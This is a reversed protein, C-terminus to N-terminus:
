GRALEPMPTGTYSHLLGRLQEVQSESLGSKPIGLSAKKDNRVLLFFRPYEEVRKYATWNTTTTSQGSRVTLGSADVVIRVEGNGYAHRYMKHFRARIMWLRLLILGIAVAIVAMASQWERPETVLEDVGGIILLLSFWSRILFSWPKSRVPQWHIASYEAQSVNLSFEM